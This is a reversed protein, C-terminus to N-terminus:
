SWVSAGPAAVAECLPPWRSPHGVFDTYADTDYAAHFEPSGIDPLGAGGEVLSPPLAGAAWALQVALDATVLGSANFLHGDLVGAEYAGLAVQRLAGSFRVYSTLVVTAAGGDAARVRDGPRLRAFPVLPAAGAEASLLLQDCSAVLTRVEGGELRFEGAMTPADAPVPGIAAAHTVVRTTWGDLTPGTALVPDGVALSNSLRYLGPEVEVAAAGAEAAAIDCCCYCKGSGNRAFTPYVADRPMGHSLCYKNIDPQIDACTDVPCYHNGPPPQKVINDLCKRSTM